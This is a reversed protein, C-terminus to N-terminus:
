PQRPAIGTGDPKLRATPVWGEASGRTRPNLYVVSTFRGYDTRADVHDHEVVFLGDIRCAVDPASYFALRGKGTVVRGTDSGMVYDGQAQARRNLADCDVANRVPAAPAAPAACTSVFRSLARRDLNLVDSRDPDRTVDLARMSQTDLTVWGITADRNPTGPRDPMTFLRIRYVDGDREDVDAHIDRRNMATQRLAPVILRTLQDNCSARPAAAATQVAMAGLCALAVRVAAAGFRRRCVAEGNAGAPTVIENKM